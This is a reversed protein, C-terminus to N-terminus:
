NFSRTIHPLRAKDVGAETSWCQVVVQLPIESTVLEGILQEYEQPNKPNITFETPTIQQYKEGAFVLTCVDGHSNLEKALQQAVGQEDALLLWGKSTTSKPAEITQAAQAVIVAQQSLIEPMGEVEPLTVVQIFDTDALVEQWQSRSLLPYDPRLQYDQFKWWGELLGFVLDVWYTRTTAEYLVLMGGPALLQKM